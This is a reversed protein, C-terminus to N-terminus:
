SPFIEGVRLEFGPLVDGSDLIDNEKLIAVDGDASYQMVSRSDPYVVWVHRAGANLLQSVKRLIDSAKNSPSIIEVALDPTTEYWSDELPGLQHAKSLFAIDLGRVTDRGYSDRELVFGADGSTVEGLEHTEVHNAIRLILRTAIVGHRRKPKPMEVLRGEVLELNSDVYEPLDVLELFREATIFREAIAM